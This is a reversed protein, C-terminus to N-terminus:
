IIKLHRKRDTVRGICAAQEYGADRLKRVVEDISSPPVGAM